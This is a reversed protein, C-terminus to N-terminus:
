GMSGAVLHHLFEAELRGFAEGGLGLRRKVGCAEFSEPLLVFQEFFDGFAIGADVRAAGVADDHLVPGNDVTVFEGGEDAQRLLLDVEEDVEHSDAVSDVAGHAHIDAVEAPM